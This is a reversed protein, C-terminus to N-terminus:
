RPVENDNMEDFQFPLAAAEDFRGRNARAYAWFAIGAFTAFSLLTALIRLTNIDM